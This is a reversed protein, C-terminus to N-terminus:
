GYGYYLGSGSGQRVRVGVGIRIELKGWSQLWPIHTVTAGIGMGMGMGIRIELKGWSQLLSTTRARVKSVLELLSSCMPHELVLTHTM